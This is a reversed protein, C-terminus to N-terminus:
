VDVDGEDIDELVGQCADALELDSEAVRELLDRRQEVLEELSPEGEARDRLQTSM